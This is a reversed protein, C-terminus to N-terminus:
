RVGAGRRPPGRSTSPPHRGHSLPATGQLRLVLEREQEREHGEEHIVLADTDAIALGRGWPKAAEIAAQQVRGILLLDDRTCDTGHVECHIRGYEAVAVTGFRESLRASHLLPTNGEGLSVTM